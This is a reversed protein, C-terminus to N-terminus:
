KVHYEARIYDKLKRSPIAAPYIGTKWACYPFSIQDRKSHKKIQEWWLESLKICDPHNHKRLIYQCGWLGSQVPLGEAIYAQTQKNIIEPDDKFNGKNTLQICHAAEDYADQKWGSNLRAPNVFVADGM